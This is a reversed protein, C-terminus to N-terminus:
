TTSEGYQTVARKKNNKLEEKLKEAVEKQGLVGSKKKKFRIKSRITEDLKRYREEQKDELERALFNMEKMIPISLEKGIERGIEDKNELIASKILESMLKQFQQMKEERLASCKETDKLTIEVEEQNVSGDTDAKGEMEETLALVKMRIASLQYGKEKLNKVMQFTDMQKTEYMRHGMENRPIELQLEEEWYRLTHAHVGLINAAETITYRNNM